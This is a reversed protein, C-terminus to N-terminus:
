GVGTDAYFGNIHDTVVRGALPGDGAEVARLVEAHEIRLRAAM